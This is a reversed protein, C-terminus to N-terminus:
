SAGVIGCPIEHSVRMSAVCIAAVHRERHPSMWITLGLTGGGWEFPHALRARARGIVHRNFNSQMYFVVNCFDFPKPHEGDGM